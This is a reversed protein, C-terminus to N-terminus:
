NIRIDTGKFVFCELGNDLKIRQGWGVATYEVAIVEGKGGRHPHDIGVIEVRKGICADKLKQLAEEAEPSMKKDIQDSM